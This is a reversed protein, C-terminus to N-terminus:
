RGAAAVPRAPARAAGGACQDRRDDRGTREVPLLQEQHLYVALTAVGPGYQVPALVDAPFPATTAQGCGPCSRTEAQHEVVQARVIPLDIVQRRETRLVSATALEHGCTTCAAPQHVVVRDPQEVLTLSAGPHGPQGGPRRGSTGRLGQPVRRPAGPGDSSPPKSSNHSDKGLRGRLARVETRLAANEAELATMRAAMRELHDGFGAVVGEVLAVVAEPGLAYAALVRDRVAVREM